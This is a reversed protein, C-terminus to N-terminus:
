LWVVLCLYLLVLLREASVYVLPLAWQASHAAAQGSKAGQTPEIESKM